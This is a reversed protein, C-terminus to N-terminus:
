PTQTARARIQMMTASITTWHRELYGRSPHTFFAVMSEFPNEFRWQVFGIPQGATVQNGGHKSVIEEWVPQELPVGQLVIVTPRIQEIEQILEPISKKIIGRQTFRMNANIRPVSKVVNAQCFHLLACESEPQNQCAAKCRSHCDLGFLRSATWICGKYHGNWKDGSKRRDLIQERRAQLDLCVNPDDPRAHDLGVFLLREREGFRPGIYSQCHHRDGECPSFLCAGFRALTKMLDPAM